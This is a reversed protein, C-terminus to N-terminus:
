ALGPASAHQAPTIALSGVMLLLRGKKVVLNMECGAHRSGPKIVANGRRTGDFHLRGRLAGPLIASVVRLGCGQFSAVGDQQEKCRGLIPTGLGLVLFRAVCTSLLNLSKSRLCNDCGGFQSM